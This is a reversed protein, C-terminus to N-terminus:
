RVPAPPPPRRKKGLIPLLPASALSPTKKEPPKPPRRRTSTSGSSFSALSPSPSSPAELVGDPSQPEAITPLEPPLLAPSDMPTCVDSGTAPSSVRRPPECETDPLNHFSRSGQVSKPSLLAGDSTVSTVTSARRRIDPTSTANRLSKERTPSTESNSASNVIPGSEPRVGLGLNTLEKCWKANLNREVLRKTTTDIRIFKHRTDILSHLLRYIQPRKYPHGSLQTHTMLPHLVRLYTHRLGENEEPLDGLERIFVDVLVCLDNTYFFDSTGQTTFLLYLIKLILLAVCLDEASTGSSARNLIWIINEGFTKSGRMKVKLVKIVSNTEENKQSADHQESRRDKRKQHNLVSNPTTPTNVPLVAVMFQENLAILLRILSYNYTEDSFYRTSEVLDFLQSIFDETFVSLEELQSREVRCINYLLEVALEACRLIHLHHAKEGGIVTGSQEVLEILFPVIENWKKRLILFMPTSTRAIHRTTSASADNQALGLRHIALLPLILDTASRPQVTSTSAEPSSPHPSFLDSLLTDAMRDPHRFFLPSSLLLSACAEEQSPEALFEDHYRSACQLYCRLNYDLQQLPSLPDITLLEELELWFQQPSEFHITIGLADM